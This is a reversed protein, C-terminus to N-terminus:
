WAGTTIQKLNTVQKYRAQVDQITPPVSGRNKRWSDYPFAAGAITTYTTGHNGTPEGVIVFKGSTKVLAYFDIQSNSKATLFIARRNQYVVSILTDALVAMARKKSAHHLRRWASNFSGMTLISYGCNLAFSNETATARLTIGKYEFSVTRSM